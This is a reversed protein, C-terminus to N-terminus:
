ALVKKRAQNNEKPLSQNKRDGAKKQKRKLEDGLRKEEV